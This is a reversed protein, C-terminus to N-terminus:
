FDGSDRDADLLGDGAKDDVVVHIFAGGADNSKAAMGVGFIVAGLWILLVIHIACWAYGIVLFAIVLNKELGAAMGVLDVSYLIGSALYCGMVFFVIIAFVIYWTVRTGLNITVKKQERATPMIILGWVLVVGVLVSAIAAFVGVEYGYYPGILGAAGPIAVSIHNALLYVANILIFFFAAYRVKVLGQVFKEMASGSTGFLFNGM